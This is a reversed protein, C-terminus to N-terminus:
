HGNQSLSNAHHSEAGAALRKGVNGRSRGCNSRSSSRRTGALPMVSYVTV